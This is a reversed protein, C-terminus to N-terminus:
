LAVDDCGLEKLKMEADFYVTVNSNAKINEFLNLAKDLLV